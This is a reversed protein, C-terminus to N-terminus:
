FTRHAGRVSNILQTVWPEHSPLVDAKVAYQKRLGVPHLTAEDTVHLTRQHGVPALRWPM